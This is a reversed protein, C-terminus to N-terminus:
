QTRGAVRQERSNAAVGIIGSWKEALAQPDTCQLEVGL